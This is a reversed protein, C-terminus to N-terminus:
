AKEHYGEYLDGVHMCAKIEQVIGKIPPKIDTPNRTMLIGEISSKEERGTTINRMVSARINSETYIIGRLIEVEDGESIQLGADWTVKVLRKESLTENVM